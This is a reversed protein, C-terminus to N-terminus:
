FAALLGVPANYLRKGLLYTAVVTLTGISVLFLRAVMLLQADRFFALLLNQTTPVTGSLIFYASWWALITYQFFSGHVYTPLALRNYSAYLVSDMNTNEDWHYRPFDFGYVRVAFAGLVILVLWLHKM